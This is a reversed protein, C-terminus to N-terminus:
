SLVFAPARESVPEDMFRGLGYDGAITTRDLRRAYQVPMGGGQHIFRWNDWVVM